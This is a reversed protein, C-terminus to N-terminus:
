TRISYDGEVVWKESCLGELGVPGRVHFKDTSIGIEAGLGYEFGDAFRTSANVMVSGSDVLQRFRDASVTDNCLISDTHGSGYHNIHDIAEDLSDVVRVALVPALYEEYWDKETARKAFPVIQQTRECGRIEVGLADLRGAAMPLFADAIVCDVLLTEATNCTGYRQTKSNVVVDLARELNASREVFLHCVGDLHKIVPVRAHKSIREILGRGGRPIIVDVTDPSSILASVVEHDLQQILQISTPPLEADELAEVLIDTLIRNSNIADRGGRLIAANSSKICLVAADITVNPRSEYIMGVVGLPVKMKAIRIGSPMQQYPSLTGIPDALAAVQEVGQAIAEIRKKDLMLRDILAASLGSRHAAELDLQNAEIILNREERIRQALCNLFVNKQQTSAAALKRSASRANAGLENVYAKFDM